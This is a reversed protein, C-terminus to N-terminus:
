ARKDAYMAADARRLLSDYDDGEQLAASGFSAQLLTDTGPVDRDGIVRRIREVLATADVETAGPLWAAFEDGGIRGLLDWPRLSLRCCGALTRLAADGAAHGHEDNIAKLRDLDIMLLVGPEGRRQAAEVAERTRDEFFARSLAGTLPDNTLLQRLRLNDAYLAPVGLAFYSNAAVSILAFQLVLADGGLSLLAALLALLASFGAVAVAAQLTGETYAIWLQVVVALLLLYLVAPEGPWAARLALVAATVALLLAFKALFPRGLRMSVEVGMRPLRASVPVHAWGAIASLLLVTLPALAVAGAYDGIWWPVLVGAIADPQMVGTLVLSLAGLVAALLAGAAALLLFAAVLRLTAAHRSRDRSFHRMALAAVAYAGTHALAFALGTALVRPLDLTANHGLDALLTAVMCALWLAPLARWGIVLLAALTIGAPPFWLSAHPAYELLRAAFFTALWLGAVLLHLVLIRPRSPPNM